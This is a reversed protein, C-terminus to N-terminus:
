RALARPFNSATEFPIGRLALGDVACRNMTLGKLPLPMMVRNLVSGGMSSLILLQFLHAQLAKIM